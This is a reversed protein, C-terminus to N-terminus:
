SRNSSHEKGYYKEKAKKLKNSLYVIEKERHTLQSYKYMANTHKIAKVQGVLLVYILPKNSFQRSKTMFEWYTKIWKLM